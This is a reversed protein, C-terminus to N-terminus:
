LPCLVKQAFILDSISNFLSCIVRSIVETFFLVIPIRRFFLIQCIKLNQLFLFSQGFFDSNFFLLLLNTLNFNALHLIHYRLELPLDFFFLKTQVFFTLSYVFLLFESVFKLFQFLINDMFIILGFIVIM